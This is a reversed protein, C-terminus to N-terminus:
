SARARHTTKTRTAAKGTRVTPPAVDDGEASSAGMEAVVSAIGEVRLRIDLGDGSVEVREVLLQIIRAQEVPFLEVWLVDFKQLSQRVDNETLRQLQGTTSSAAASRNGTEAQLKRVAKWTGAVIEPARLLHRVQDIVANEIEAAPVRRIPHADKTEIRGKLVDQSVYYRYLRGGKRTHTPSMAIGDPGFILGKLLAPTQRRSDAARKRPSEQLIAHVRDWLKQTIIPRHEGPYSEGKHVAQGIYVRNNLLKYIAGKDFIKGTKTRVSQRYLERSM